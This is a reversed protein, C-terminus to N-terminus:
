FSKDHLASTNAERSGPFITIIKDWYSKTGIFFLQVGHEEFGNFFHAVALLIFSFGDICFKESGSM